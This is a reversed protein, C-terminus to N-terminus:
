RRRFKGHKLKGQPAVYVPAPHVIVAAPAGVEIGVHISPTPVVVGAGVGIGVGPAVVAARPGAVVVGPGVFEARAGIWGVPADVTVVPRSYALPRYYANIGVYTPRAEIM